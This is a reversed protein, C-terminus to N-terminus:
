VFGERLTTALAPFFNRSPQTRSITQVVSMLTATTDMGRFTNSGFSNKRALALPRLEQEALNNTGNPSIVLSRVLGDLQHEVREQIKLTTPDTAKLHSILTLQQRVREELASLDAQYNPDRGLHYTAVLQDRIKVSVHNKSKNITEEFAFRLLHSWCYLNKEKPIVKAYSLLGDHMSYAQSDGYLEQAIGSGRSEAALYITAQDNAMLWMWANKGKVQWGTEDNYMLDGARILRKLEQYRPGLYKKAQTLLNVLSSPAVTLGFGLELVQAIKTLSLLCRCRLLLILMFTNLGYETFPLSETARAKVPRHCHSCWQRESEIILKVVQPNLIIDILTKTTTAQVRKLPSGCTLCHTLSLHQHSYLSLDEQHERNTDLHGRQGGKKKGTTFAPTFNGHDFIAVRYREKTITLRNIEQKLKELEHELLGKEQELRQNRELESQYQEQWFNAKEETRRQQNKLLSNALRLNPLESRYKEIVRVLFPITETSKLAIPLRFPRYKPLNM